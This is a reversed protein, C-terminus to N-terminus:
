KLKDSVERNYLRQVTPFEAALLPYRKLLTKSRRLLAFRDNLGLLKWAETKREHTSQLAEEIYALEIKALELDIDIGEGDLRMRCPSMAGSRSASLIDLNLDEQEIRGHSKYNAYIVAREIVAKLERVNGPWNYQTLLEAAEESVETIYTRGQERFLNLFHSVLLPIDDRRERLPPSFIQISKLRFYLDQRIQGREVAEELNRNTAALVQVDIELEDSSGVRSYKREELFRLLKLQAEAPLDGIEDLFLVGHKAKEIFGIRRGKAGTFAGAEHGFLESEVLSPNLSAIAVPVFPGKQRWGMQHVARAVLEKGTGTEGRILVTVYGDKAVMQILNRVEAIQSNQGVLEGPEVRAYDRQLSSVRQELRARELANALAARLKTLDFPRALFDAAGEKMAEVAVGVDGYATMMIVPVDLRQARFDRLLGLGDRNAEDSEDLRIDLLIIDCGSHLARRAQEKDIASSISYEHRLARTLSEILEINDDVIFLRPLSM